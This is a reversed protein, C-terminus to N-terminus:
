RYLWGRLASLLHVRDVPKSLYANAEIDAMREKGAASVVIVPISALAADRIQQSRFQWGDMVPMMLDLLVADPAEKEVARLAERGNAVSRVELGAEELYAVLLNRMDQDDEVVLVRGGRQRVLNRWLVRLLDEREVPKTILDVAGLLRGRGEKAVISVVVAM